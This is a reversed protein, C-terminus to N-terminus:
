GNLPKTPPLELLYGERVRVVGSGRLSDWGWKEDTYNGSIGVLEYLDGVTVTEYRELIGYMRELVTEAEARNELVIEDFNHSQRAQRSLTPREVDRYDRGRPRIGSVRSYGSYDIRRSSSRRSRSRTEGFIMREAGESIADLIMDKAAPALIDAAVYGFVSRADDGTVFFEKLKRGLPKKRQVVKGSVVNEVGEKRDTRVEKEVPIETQNRVLKSEYNDETM